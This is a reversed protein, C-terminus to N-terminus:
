ESQGSIYTANKNIKVNLLDKYKPASSYIANRIFSRQLAMPPRPGGRNRGAAGHTEGNGAEFPPWRCCNRPVVAAVLRAVESPASKSVRAHRESVRVRVRARAYM